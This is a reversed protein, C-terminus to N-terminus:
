ENPRSKFIIRSVLGIVISLLIGGGLMIETNKFHYQALFIFFWLLVTVNYAHYGAKYKVHISLEDDRNLGKNKKKYFLLGILVVFLIIVYFLSSNKYDILNPIRSIAAIGYVAGMLAISVVYKILMDNKM